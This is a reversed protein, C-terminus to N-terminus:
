EGWDTGWSNKLVLYSEGTKFDVGYGVALM